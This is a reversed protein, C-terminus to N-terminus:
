RLGKVAEDCLLILAQERPAGCRRLEIVRAIAYLITTRDCAFEKALWRIPRWQRSRDFCHWIAVHRAFTDTWGRATFLNEFAVKFVKAVAKCIKLNQSTM